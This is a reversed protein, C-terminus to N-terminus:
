SKVGAHERCAWAPMKALHEAAAKEAAAREMGQMGMFYGQVTGEFVQAYPRLEGNEDLCYHCYMEGPKADALPMGCSQCNELAIPTYFNLRYSDPDRLPFDRLGYFQNKPASTVPAKRGRVEAYFADVDPVMLYFVAGAGPTGARFEALMEKMAAGGEADHECHQADPEMAAGIMISQRHLVLNAWLPQEKSPWAEKLTFGLRRCYFDVSAAMDACTLMISNPYQDSESM